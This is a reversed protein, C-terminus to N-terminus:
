ASAPAGHHLSVAGGVLVFRAPGPVFLAAGDGIEIFGALRLLHTMARVLDRHADFMMTPGFSIVFAVAHVIDPRKQEATAIRAMVANMFATRRTLGRDVSCVVATGPVAGVVLDSPDHIGLCLRILGMWLTSYLM